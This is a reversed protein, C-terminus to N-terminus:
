CIGRRRGEELQLRGRRRGNGAADLDLVTAFEDDSDEEEQGRWIADDHPAKTPLLLVVAVISPLCM